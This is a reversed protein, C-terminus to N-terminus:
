KLFKNEFYRLREANRKKRAEKGKSKMEMHTRAHCDHCLARLNHPDFMLREKERLSVGSEVPVIHHVETAPTIRGEEKCRECLPCQTIKDRRLKLWRSTHIMRRYDRDKAM